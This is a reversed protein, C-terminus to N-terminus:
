RRRFVQREVRLQDIAQRAGILHQEIKSAVQADSAAFPEQIGSRLAVRKLFASKFTREL